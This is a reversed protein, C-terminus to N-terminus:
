FVGPNVALLTLDGVPRGRCTLPVSSWSAFRSADPLAGEPIGSAATPVLTSSGASVLGIWAADAGGQRVMVDCITQLLETEDKARVITQNIQGLARYLGQVRTLHQEARKRPSINDFQAIFFGIQPSFVSVEFWTDLASLYTEFREPVGSLAVRGYTQVLEPDKETIGPIVQGARKGAVNGLGTLRAFAPNVDLYLFDVPVFKDLLIQCYALGDLMHFALTSQGFPPLQDMLKRIRKAM